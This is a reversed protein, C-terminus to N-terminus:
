ENSPTSCHDRRNGEIVERGKPFGDGDLVLGIVVQKCDPRRTTMDETAHKSVGRFDAV